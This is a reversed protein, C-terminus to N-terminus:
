LVLQGPFLMKKRVMHFLLSHLAIDGQLKAVGHCDGWLLPLLLLLCLGRCIPLGGYCEGWLLLLLLLLFVGAFQCASYCDGWLLRLLLLLAPGGQVNAAGM